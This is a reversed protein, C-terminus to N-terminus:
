HPCHKVVATEGHLILMSRTLPYGTTQFVTKSDLPQAVNGWAPPLHKSLLAVTMRQKLKLFADLSKIM